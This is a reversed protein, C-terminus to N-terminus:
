CTVKPCSQEFWTIIWYRWCLLEIEEVKSAASNERFWTKSRVKWPSHWVDFPSPCCVFILLNESPFNQVKECRRSGECIQRVNGRLFFKVFGQSGFGYFRPLVAWLGLLFLKVILGGDSRGVKSIGLISCHQSGSTAHWISQSGMIPDPQELKCAILVHISYEPIGKFSCSGSVMIGLSCSKEAVVQPMRRTQHFELPVQRTSTKWMKDGSSFTTEIREYFANM